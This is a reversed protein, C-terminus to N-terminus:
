RQLVVELTGACRYEDPRTHDLEGFLRLHLSSHPPLGNTTEVTKGGQASFAIWARQLGVTSYRYQTELSLLCGGENRIRLLYRLPTDGFNNVTHYLAHRDHLSGEKLAGKWHSEPAAASNVGLPGPTRVTGVARAAQGGLSGPVRSNSM